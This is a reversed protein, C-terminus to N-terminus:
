EIRPLLRNRPSRNERAGVGRTAPAWAWVEDAIPEPDSEPQQEPEEGVVVAIISTGLQM